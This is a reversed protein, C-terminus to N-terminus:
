ENLQITRLKFHIFQHCAALGSILLIRNLVNGHSPFAAVCDLFGRKSGKMGSLAILQPWNRRVLIAALGPAFFMISSPAQGPTTEANPLDADPGSATHTNGASFWNTAANWDTELSTNKTAEFALQISSLAGPWVRVAKLCLGDHASPTLRFNDNSIQYHDDLFTFNAFTWRNTSKDVAPQLILSADAVVPFILLALASFVILAKM